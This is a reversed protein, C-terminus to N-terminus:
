SALASIKFNGDSTDNYAANTTSTIRVKYDTGNAQTSPITWSQSKDNLTSTLITRNVVGNKLLEIRVYTGTSGTYNWTILYPKGRIWNQGGNPSTVTIKPPVINFNNDSTDNISANIISTIKIKYDTGPVQAAPMLWPHNGDNLTSSTIVKNAVNPKLLEIKVYSKPSETSNWKITQTTGRTWNNFGNPYVVTISPVPITFSNDSTDKYSANATSTIRIRYDTGPAQTGLIPWPHTGDNPTSLVITRNLIGAKLLEIKVYAGPSGSYKWKITQTTGRILTETGNPSVVTINPTPITFSKNSTDSYSKNATSTIKVKYDTGPAQTSLIPWLYSGDNPTSAIITKNLIGPKLLEIKVYAGPSGSSNWKINQTTGRTWNEGGNPSDVTISPTPSSITFFNSTTLTYTSTGAGIIMIKYDTGPAQTSPIAWPYSGDNSTNLTINRNLVSGKLLEIRVYPWYIGGFNWLINNTSGSKWNEGGTPSIITLTSTASGTAIVVMQNDVNENTQISMAAPLLLITMVFITYVILKIRSM